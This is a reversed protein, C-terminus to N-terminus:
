NKLFPPKYDLGLLSRARMELKNFCELLCLKEQDTLSSFTMEISNKPMQAFVDRGKETITIRYQRSSETKQRMILAQKEMRRVMMSVANHNVLSSEAIENITSSGGKETLYHLIHSQEPTIGYRNIELDREKSILKQVRTFVGWLEYNDKIIEICADPSQNM